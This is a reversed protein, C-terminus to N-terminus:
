KTIKNELALRQMVFLTDCVPQWQWYILHQVHANIYIYINNHSKNAHTQTYTSIYTICTYHDRVKNSHCITFINNLVLCGPMSEEVPTPANSIQAKSIHWTEPDHKLGGKCITTAGEYGELKVGKPKCGM